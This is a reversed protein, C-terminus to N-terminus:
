ELSDMRRDKCRDESLAAGALFDTGPSLAAGAAFDAGAMLVMSRAFTNRRGRYRCTVTQAAM